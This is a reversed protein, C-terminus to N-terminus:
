ADGVNVASAQSGQNPKVRARPIITSRQLESVQRLSNAIQELDCFQNRDEVNVGALLFSRLRKALARHSLADRCGM